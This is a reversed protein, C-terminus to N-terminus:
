DYRCIPTWSCRSSFMRLSLDACIGVEDAEGFIDDVPDAAPSLSNWPIKTESHEHRPSEGIVDNKDRLQWGGSPVHAEVRHAKKEAEERDRAQVLEWPVKTYRTTSPPADPDGKPGYIKLEGLVTKLACIWKNRRKAPFPCFNTPSSPGGHQFTLRAAGKLAGQQWNSKYKIDATLTLKEQEPFDTPPLRDANM